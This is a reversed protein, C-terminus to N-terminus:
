WGSRAPRSRGSAEHHDRLARAHRTIAGTLSGPPLNNTPANPDDGSARLQRDVPRGDRGVITGIDVLTRDSDGPPPPLVGGAPVFNFQRGALSLAPGFVHTNSLASRSRIRPSAPAGASGM